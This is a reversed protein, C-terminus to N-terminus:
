EKPQGYIALHPQVKEVDGLEDMSAAVGHGLGLHLFEPLFEVRVPSFQIANKPLVLIFIEWHDDQAIEAGDLSYELLLDLDGFIEGNEVSDEPLQLALDGVLLGHLGEDGLVEIKSAEVLKHESFFTHQLLFHRLLFESVLLVPFACVIHPPFTGVM